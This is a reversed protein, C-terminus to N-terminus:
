VVSSHVATHCPGVAFIWKVNGTQVKPTTRMILLGLASFLFGAGFRFVSLEFDPPMQVMLQIFAVGGLQPITSLFASFIGYIYRWPFPADGKKDLLASEEEM